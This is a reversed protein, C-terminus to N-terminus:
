SSTPKQRGARAQGPRRATARAGGRTACDVDQEARLHVHTVTEGKAHAELHERSRDAGLTTRMASFLDSSCWISTDM